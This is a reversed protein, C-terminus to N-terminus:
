TTRRPRLRKEGPNGVSLRRLGFRFCAEVDYQGTEYNNKSKGGARRNEHKSIM